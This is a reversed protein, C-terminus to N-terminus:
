RMPFRDAEASAPRTSYSSRHERIGNLSANSISFPRRKPLFAPLGSGRWEEQGM